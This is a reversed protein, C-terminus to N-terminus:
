PRGLARDDDARRRVSHSRKQKVRRVCTLPVLLYHVHGRRFARCHDVWFYVAQDAIPAKPLVDVPCSWELRRGARSDIRRTVRETTARGARVLLAGILMVVVTVIAAAAAIFAVFKGILGM